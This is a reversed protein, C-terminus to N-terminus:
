LYKSIRLALSLCRLIETGAGRYVWMECLTSQPSIRFAYYRAWLKEVEQFFPM